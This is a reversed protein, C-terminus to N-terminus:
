CLNTYTQCFIIKKTNLTSYWALSFENFIDSFIADTPGLNIYGINLVFYYTVMSSKKKFAM